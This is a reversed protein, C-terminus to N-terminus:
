RFLRKGRASFGEGGGVSLAKFGASGGEGAKKTRRLAERLHDPLLPGRLAEDLKGDSSEAILWQTQVERAKTVLEGIFVKTFGGIATVVSQPISQSLTQNAIKRVGEKRLKVRRYKEYRDSQEPNFANMLIELKKRDQESDAKGSGELMANDEGDEADEEGDIDETVGAARGDIISATIPTKNGGRSSAALSKRGRKSGTGAISSEVSPSRAESGPIEEPPFSTQRLPHASTTSFSAKRRKSSSSTISLAPRKKPPYPHSTILNLSPPSAMAGTAAHPSSKRSVHLKLPM